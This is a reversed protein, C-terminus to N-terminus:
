EQPRLGNFHCRETPQGDGPFQDQHCTQRDTEQEDRRGRRHRRVGARDDRAQGVAIGARHGVVRDLADLGVDALHLRRRPRHGHRDARSVLRAQAVARRDDLM